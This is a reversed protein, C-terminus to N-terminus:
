PPRLNPSLWQAPSPSQQPEWTGPSATQLRASPGQPLLSLLCTPFSPLYSGPGEVSSPWSSTSLCQVPDPTLVSLSTKPSLSVYTKSFYIVTDNSINAFLERWVMLREQSAKGKEKDVQRRQTTHPKTSWRSTCTRKPRWFCGIVVIDDGLLRWIQFM